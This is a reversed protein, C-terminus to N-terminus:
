EDSGYAADRARRLTRIFHNIEARTLPETYFTSFAELDEPQDKIHDITRQMDKPAIGISVQVSGNMEIASGASRSWMIDVQPKTSYTIEGDVEGSALRRDHADYEVEFASHDDTAPYKVRAYDRGYHVTERPM